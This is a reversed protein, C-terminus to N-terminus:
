LQAGLRVSLINNSYSSGAVDSERREHTYGATTFFNRTFRYTAGFGATYYNDSRQIGQYDESRYRVSGNLILNRLLEHDVNLEISSRVYSSALRGGEGSVTSPQISRSATFRVTTLQTVAWDIQGGFALGQFDQFRPDTYRRDLYGAFLEGKILGTLDAAVGTVFEFGSSDRDIGANDTGQRTIAYTGRVFVEYGPKIEYGTRLSLDYDWRNRDDQDATLGNRLRVDEFDVHAASGSVRASLRNFRQNFSADTGTTTYTVPEAQGAPANPDARGEHNRRHFVEGTFYSDRSIDFRGSGTIRYDDYNESSFKRYRGLDAAASLNLEHRNFNSKVEIQPLIKYVFDGRTNRPEAFVNSEYQGGAELRPFILFAGARVGIPDLEPRPREMVGRGRELTQASTEAAGALGVLALTGLLMPMPRTKMTQAGSQVARQIASGLGVAVPARAKTEFGGSGDSYGSCPLSGSEGKKADDPGARFM